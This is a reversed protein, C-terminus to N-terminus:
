KAGVPIASWWFINIYEQKQMTSMIQRRSNSKTESQIDM